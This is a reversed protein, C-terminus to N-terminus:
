RSQPVAIRDPWQAQSRAPPLRRIQSRDLEVSVSRQLLSISLILRQSSRIETLIGDVGILPGSEIVVREGVALYPVPECTFGAKVATQLALIEADDVAVPVPGFGVIRVVGATGLVAVRQRSTCRCFVYGPFLPLEMEKYRDKWKRRSHYCPLFPELGKAALQMEVVREHRVQVYVALWRQGDTAQPDQM